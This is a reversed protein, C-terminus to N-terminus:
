TIDEMMLGRIVLPMANLYQSKMGAGFSRLYNKTKDKYATYSWCQLPSVSGEKTM